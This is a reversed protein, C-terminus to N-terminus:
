RFGLWPLFGFQKRTQVGACFVSLTQMAHNICNAPTFLSIPISQPYALRAFLALRAIFTLSTDSHTPSAVEVMRLYRFSKPSTWPAKEPDAIRRGLRAYRYSWLTTFLLIGLGLIAVYDLFSFVLRAEAGRGFALYGIMAIPLIALVAQVWFGLWGLRRFSRAISQVSTSEVHSAM